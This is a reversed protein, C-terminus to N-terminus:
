GSSEKLIKVVEEDDVQIFEQYFQGVARFWAPARLCIVNDATVALKVLSDAPAVPVAAVLTSPEEHKAIWLAAEMTAGTAIGDDTIIVTKGGLPVKAKVSRYEQIRREIENLQRKKEQAIYREDIGMSFVLTTDLVMHGDESLAGIALEPNAPAGLKRSLVVDLDAKLISAVERAVIIGGRPIGLVVTKESGFKKLEAALLRGAEQRDAFSEDNYSIINIKSSIRM